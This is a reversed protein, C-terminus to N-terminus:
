RSREQYFAHIEQGQALWTDDSDAIEQLGRRLYPLYRAQGVLFPHLPVVMVRGRRERKAEARLQEFHDLLSQLYAPGTLRERFILEMDNLEISYPMSVIAREGVSLEVPLDDCVWDCVYDYGVDLLAELTSHSEALGPGLWGVPSKGTAKTIRETAMRILSREDDPALGTMRVTNNTGHGIWEWGRACGEAVMQPYADCVDSNLTASVKVGVDDLCDLLRWFGVRPGYDRWSNNLVDPSKGATRENIVPGINGFPYFEVNPVVWLAVAADGPWLVKPRETIPQYRYPADKV